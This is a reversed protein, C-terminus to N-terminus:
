WFDFDIRKCLQGDDDAAVINQKKEPITENVKKVFNDVSKNSLKVKSTFRKERQTM